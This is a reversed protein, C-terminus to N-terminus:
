FFSVFAFNSLRFTMIKIMNHNKRKSFHLVAKIKGLKTQRYHIINAFIVTVKKNAYTHFITVLKTLKTVVHYRTSWFVVVVLWNYIIDYVKDRYINNILFTMRKKFYHWCKNIPKDHQWTLLLSKCCREPGFQLENDTSKPIKLFTGRM